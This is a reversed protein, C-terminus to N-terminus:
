FKRSEKDMRLCSGTVRLEEDSPADPYQSTRRVEQYLITGSVRNILIAKRQPGVEGGDISNLKWVYEDCRAGSFDVFEDRLEFSTVGTGVVAALCRERTTSVGRLIERIDVFLNGEKKEVQAGYERRVLVVACTLKTVIDKPKQAATSGVSGSPPQSASTAVAFLTVLSLVVLEALYNQTKTVSM